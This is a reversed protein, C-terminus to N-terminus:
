VLVTMTLRLANLLSARRGRRRHSWRGLRCGQRSFRAQQDHNGHCQSDHDHLDDYHSDRSRRRGLRGPLKRHDLRHPSPM